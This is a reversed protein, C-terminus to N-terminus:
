GIQDVERALAKFARITLCLQVTGVMGMLVGAQTGLDNCIRATDPYLATDQMALGAENGAGLFPRGTASAHSAASRLYKYIRQVHLYETAKTAPAPDTWRWGGM